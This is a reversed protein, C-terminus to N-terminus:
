LRKNISKQVSILLHHYTGKLIDSVSKWLDRLFIKKKGSKVFSINTTTLDCFITRYVCLSLTGAYTSETKRINIKRRYAVTRSVRCSIAISAVVSDLERECKQRKQGIASITGPRNSMQWDIFEFYLCSYCIAVIRQFMTLLVLNFFFLNKM